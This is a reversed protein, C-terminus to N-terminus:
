NSGAIYERKRSKYMDQFYRLHWDSAANKLLFKLQLLDLWSNRQYHIVVGM